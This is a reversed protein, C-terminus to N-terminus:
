GGYKDRIVGVSCLRSEVLGALQLLMEHKGGLGSFRDERQEEPIEMRDPVLEM